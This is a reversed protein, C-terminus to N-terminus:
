YRTQRQSFPAKCIHSEALVPFTAVKIINTCNIRYRRAAKLTQVLIVLWTLRNMTKANSKEMHSRNDTTLKNLSNDRVWHSVRVMSNLKLVLFRIICRWKM